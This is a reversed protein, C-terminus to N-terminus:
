LPIEKRESGYRMTDLSVSLADALQCATVWRPESKGNELESVTQSSVGSLKALEAQSLNKQVRLLRLADGFARCVISIRYATATREPRRRPLRPKRLPVAGGNPESM